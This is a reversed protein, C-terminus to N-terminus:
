SLNALRVLVAQHSESLVTQHPTEAVVGETSKVEVFDLHREAVDLRSLVEQVLDHWDADLFDTM